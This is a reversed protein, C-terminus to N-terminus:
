PSSGSRRKRQRARSVRAYKRTKPVCCGIQAAAAEIRGAQGAVELGVLRLVDAEVLAGAVLDDALRGHDPDV